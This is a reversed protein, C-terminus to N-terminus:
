TRGRRVFIGVDLRRDAARIDSLTCERATSRPARFAQGETAWSIHGATPLQRVLFGCTTPVGLGAPRM